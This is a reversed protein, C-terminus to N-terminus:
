PFSAVTELQDSEFVAQPTIVPADMPINRGYREALKRQVIPNSLDMERLTQLKGVTIGLAQEYAKYVLESCYFRDDSWDFARDYHKGLHRTAARRLRDVAEPTLQKDADRLRRVVARQGSGRAIWTSLPTWRVPEIAEIVMTRPGIQFIMGMHSYRSHTALQVALSQPSRSTQFIIDGDRLVTAPPIILLAAALLVLM